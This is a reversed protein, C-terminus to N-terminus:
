SKELKLVRPLGQLDRFLTQALDPCKARFLSSINDYGKANLELFAAGGKALRKEINGAIERYAMLGDEGSFLAEPPEYERVERALDMKEALPIYPPNGVIVQFEEPDGTKLASFWDGQRWEIPKRDGLLQSNESAVELARASLDVAWIRCSINQAIAIAICGSGTGLDLVNRKGEPNEELFELTKEVLQETEPRPILVGPVTKFDLGFFERKGLIYQLPEHQGRRKLLERISALEQADLPRDFQLYVKLRDIQLANALLIEVDLKPHSIGKQQLYPVAWQIIKLPTWPPKIDATEQSM